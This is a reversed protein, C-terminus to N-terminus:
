RNLKEPSKIRPKLDARQIPLEFGTTGNENALADLAPSLMFRQCLLLAHSVPM